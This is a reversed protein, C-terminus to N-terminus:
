GRCDTSRNVCPLRAALCNGHNTQRMGFVKEKLAPSPVYFKGGGMDFAKEHADQAEFEAKRLVLGYDTFVFYNDQSSELARVAKEAVSDM